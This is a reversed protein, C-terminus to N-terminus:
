NLKVSVEKLEKKVNNFLQEETLIEFAENKTLPNKMWQVTTVKHNFPPKSPIVVWGFAHEGERFYPSPKSM